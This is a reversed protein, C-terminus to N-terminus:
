PTRPPPEDADRWTTPDVVPASPEAPVLALAPTGGRRGVHPAPRPVPILRVPQRRPEGAPLVTM